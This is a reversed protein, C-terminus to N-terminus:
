LYMNVDLIRISNLKVCFLFFFNEDLLKRVLFLNISKALWLAHNLTLVSGTFQFKAGFYGIISGLLQKTTGCITEWEVLNDFNALKWYCFYVLMMLQCTKGAWEMAEVIWGRATIRWHRRTVHHQRDPWNLNLRSGKWVESGLPFEEPKSDLTWGVRVTTATKTQSPRPKRFRPQFNISESLNETNFLLLIM